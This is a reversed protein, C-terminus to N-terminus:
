EAVLDEVSAWAEERSRRAEAARSAKEPLGAAPAARHPLGGDEDTFSRSLLDLLALAIPSVRLRYYNQVKDPVKGKYDDGNGHHDNAAM